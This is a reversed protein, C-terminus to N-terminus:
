SNWPEAGQDGRQSGEQAAQLSREVAASGPNGTNGNAEASYAFPDVASTTGPDLRRRRHALRCVREPQVNQAPKSLKPLTGKRLDGQPPPSFLHRHHPLQQPVESAQGFFFFLNLSRAVAGSFLHTLRYAPRYSMENIRHRRSNSLYTAQGTSAQRTEPQPALQKGATTLQDGPRSLDATSHQVPPIRRSCLSCFRRGILPLGPVM